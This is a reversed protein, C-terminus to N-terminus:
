KVITAADVVTISNTQKRACGRKHAALAKLNNANFSKCMDCKLGPKQIPASYKTSLFKDLSPFRIEDIQALVKKQSEKFVDVVATKQSLFLQYENNITDLVEKPISCDDEHHSKHQRLKMNLNDIIDVAVEIKVSSYEANHVFVIVNNNHMEIQYNKKTSIGSQQSIFIGNCNQEDILQLFSTIDDVGVNENIDRNQILITPKRIRKLLLTGTTPQINIEGSNYMKTLITHLQKDNVKQITASDRFKNLIEGLDNMIKQQTGNTATAGDKLSNISTNIREESASLFSYMPQQVNQLLLSSKVEFNTIFEKVSNIDNSKILNNTDESLSKYFSTLSENIQSSIQTQNKPIVENMILSTKDILISNNKDLLPGIREYTNTQIITRVDEIYESRIEAFKTLVNSIIDSNMSNMSDKLSVMSEKLEHIDHTTNHIASLMQSQMNSNMTNDMNFLLKEFLDVFILNVAEFNIQPNEQYFALIRKNSVELKRVSM